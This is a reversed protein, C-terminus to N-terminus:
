DDCTGSAQATAAEFEAVRVTDQWFNRYTVIANPMIRQKPTGSGCVSYGLGGFAAKNNFVYYGDPNGADRAVHCTRCTKGYVEHYANIDQPSNDWEAPPAPLTPLPNGAFGSPYWANILSGIPATPNANRVMENLRAFNGFEAANPHPGGAPQGYTWSEGAAYRFSPLDFERFRAHAVKNNASLQANGGHCVSCLQPVPKPGLGDLDAFSLRGSGAVGGGYVYFQVAENVPSAAANFEMAVTAGRTVQNKSAADDANAPNQDPLGYNTVYCALNSGTKLCNMDRGFGLDNHNLYAQNVYSSNGNGGGTAADFGNAGWWGGLTTKTNAPDIATYYAQTIAQSNPPNFDGYPGTLFSARGTADQAGYNPLIGNAPSIVIPVGCETYPYDPWLNTGTMKPRNDTNIINDFVINTQTTGSSSPTGRLELRLTNPPFSTGFPIRYIAHYNGNGSTVATEKVQVANGNYSVYARLVLNSWSNFASDIEVRACTSVLPDTGSVDMNITSFHKTKGVYFSGAASSVLQAQGEEIWIGQKDDYSWMPVTPAASNLQQVPVPIRVEATTGPALDLKRGAADTLSVDVAGFSLLEAREGAATVGQFDGPLARRAPNLTTVSARVRGSVKRGQDDVLGGPQIAISAQGAECREQEALHRKLNEILEFSRVSDTNEKLNEESYLTTGVLRRVDLARKSKGGCSGSSTKDVLKMGVKPNLSQIHARQLEFTNGRQSRDYVRSLLAFNRHKVNLVYRNDSKALSSLRFWGTTNTKDVVGSMEVIADVVPQGTTEDIVRGSFELNANGVEIEIRKYAYGGFGDSAVVYGEQRGEKAALSWKERNANSGAMAGSDPAPFWKIDLPQNEPDRVGTEIELTDSPLARSLFSGQRSIATGMLRPARNAFKLDLRSTGATTDVVGGISSKECIAEISFSRQVVGFLVYEGRTNARTTIGGGKVTTSVDLGFYSDNVWCPRNDGTLVQGFAFTKETSVLLTAPAPQGKEISFSRGCGKDVTTKWCLSYSGSDPANLVFRGDLQSQTKDVDVGASDRLFVPVDPLAIASLKQEAERVPFLITGKVPTEAFAVTAASSTALLVSLFLTKLSCFCPSLAM